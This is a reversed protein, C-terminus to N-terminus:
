MVYYLVRHFRIIFTNVINMTAVPADMGSLMNVGVFSVSILVVAWLLVPLVLLYAVRRSPVLQRRASLAQGVSKVKSSRFPSSLYRLFTSVRSPGGGQAAGSLSLRSAVYEEEHTTKKGGGM